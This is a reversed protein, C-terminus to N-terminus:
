LPRRTSAPAAPSPAMAQGTPTATTSPRTRRDYERDAWQWWGALWDRFGDLTKVLAPRQDPAASAQKAGTPPKEPDLGNTAVLMALLAIITYEAVARTLPGPGAARHITLLVVVAAALAITVLGRTSLGPAPDDHGLVFGAVTLFGALALTPWWWRGVSSAARLPLPGHDVLPSWGPPSHDWGPAPGWGPLGNPHRTRHSRHV